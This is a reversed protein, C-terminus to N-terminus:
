EYSKLERAAEDSKYLSFIEIVKKRWGDEIETSGRLSFEHSV